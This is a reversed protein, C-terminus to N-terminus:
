KWFTCASIALHYIYEAPHELLFSKRSLKGAVILDNLYEFYPQTEMSVSQTPFSIYEKFHGFLSAITKKMNKPVFPDNEFSELFTELEPVTIDRRKIRSLLTKFRGPYCPACFVAHGHMKLIFLFLMFSFGDSFGNWYSNRFVDFLKFLFM